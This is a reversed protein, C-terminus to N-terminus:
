NGRWARWQPLWRPVNLCYTAYQEGYRRRLTPEEYLRVFLVFCCAVVAAYCLVPLSAFLLAQGAIMSLVGLYMPNRVYRYLGTVVLGETPMWPAPTGRGQHVFRGVTELLIPMGALVLAAGMWRLLALGGWPPGAQWQCLLWPVVGVVTGPLLFVFLISALAPPLKRRSTSM